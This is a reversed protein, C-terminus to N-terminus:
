PVANSSLTETLYNLQSSTRHTPTWAVALLCVVFNATQRETGRASETGCLSVILCVSQGSLPDEAATAPSFSQNYVELRPLRPIFGTNQARPGLSVVAVPMSCGWYSSDLHKQTTDWDPQSQGPLLLTSAANPCHPWKMLKGCPLCLSDSM